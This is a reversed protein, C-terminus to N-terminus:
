KTLKILKRQFTEDGVKLIAFYTGASEGKWTRSYSGPQLTKNVLETVKRGSADYISLVVRNEEKVHFNIGTEKEFPNPSIKGLGFDPVEGGGGESDEPIGSAPVLDGVATIAFPISGDPCNYGTVEVTYIGVELQSTSLWVIEVNNLRDESGGTASYGGSFVNGLYVADGSPDTVVLDLDNILTPDAGSSADKDSWALVFKVEQTTSQVEILTDVTQGTTVVNGDSIFLKRDEGAFYLANDVVVRGWGEDDNPVDHTGMDETSAIILSKVLAASPNIATGGSSGTPYYGEQFYQRIMAAASAVQPAAQSTGMMGSLYGYCTSDPNLWDSASNGGWVYNRYENSGQDYGGPAAVEPKIRGDDTPGRSSFGNIGDTSVDYTPSFSAAVCICNKATSPPSVTNTNPGGNGASVTVVFDKDEWVMQDIDLAEYSYNGGSGQYGWSNQHIRSGSSYASNMSNYMNTMSLACQNGDNYGIDQIYLRSPYYDKTNGRTQGGWDYLYSVDCTSPDGAVVSSVNTGHNCPNVEQTNGGENTYDQIACHNNGPPDDEPDMFYFSYYNCGTDYITVLEGDGDIGKDALTVGATVTDWSYGLDQDEVVTFTDTQVSYRWVSSHLTRPAYRNIYQVGPISALANLKESPIRVIIRNVSKQIKQVDSGWEMMKSAINGIDAGPFLRVSVHLLPDNEVWLADVWKSADEEIMVPGGGCSRQMQMVEKMGTGDENIDENVDPHIKYAPQYIGVWRVHSLEEIVEREEATMKVIFAFHPIYSYIEGGNNQVEQKWEMYVPGDFQVLYYNEGEKEVATLSKAIDPVEDMPDFKYGLMSISLDEAPLLLCLFFIMLPVLRKM